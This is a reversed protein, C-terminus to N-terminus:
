ERIFEVDYNVANVAQYYVGILRDQDKQYILTYTSGPYNVDRLEISVELNKGNLNWGARGVHIPNPNFYAADLKGDSYAAGIEIIYGGDTRQWRGKLHDTMNM